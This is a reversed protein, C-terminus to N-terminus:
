KEDRDESRYTTCTTLDTAFVYTRAHFWQHSQDECHVYNIREIYRHVGFDMVQPLVFALGFFFILLRAVKKHAQQSLEKRMVDAVLLVVGGGIGLGCGLFYMAGKEFVILDAQVLIDIVLQHLYYAFGLLTSISIMGVFAISLIKKPLSREIDKAQM